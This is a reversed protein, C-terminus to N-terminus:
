GFALLVAVLVGFVLVALVPILLGRETAPARAPEFHRTM